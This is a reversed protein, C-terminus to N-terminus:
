KSKNKRHETRASEAPNAPSDHRQTKVQLVLHPVLEKLKGALAVTAADGDCKLRVRWRFFPEIFRQGGEGVCERAKKAAAPVARMYGTHVDVLVLCLAGADAVTGPESGSSNIFGFGFAIIPLTSEARELTM